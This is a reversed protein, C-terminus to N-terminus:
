LWKAALLQLAEAVSSSASLKRDDLGNAGHLRVYRLRSSGLLASLTTELGDLSTTICGCKALARVIRGLLETYNSDAARLADRAGECLVLHDALLARLRQERESATARGTISRLQEELWRQPKPLSAPDAADRVVLRAPNGRPLAAVVARLRELPADASVFVYVPDSAVQWSRLTKTLDKTEIAEGELEVRKPDEGIVLSTGAERLPPGLARPLSDSRLAAILYQRTPAIAHGIRGAIAQLATACEREDEPDIPEGKILAGDLSPQASLGTTFV